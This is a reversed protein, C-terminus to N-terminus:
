KLEKLKAISYPIIQNLKTHTYAEEDHMYDIIEKSKTDKFASAVTELVDLEEASFNPKTMEQNPYIRYAIDDNIIEEEVRVGPLHIIEDYAIPLAGLPMHRYVLGTMSKGHRNYYIVDTYWLLKMLKVKYLYNVNQAFYAIVNNLKEIDLKKYGNYDNEEEFNVYQSLIEKKKLYTTGIKEIQKKIRSSIIDFKEKSFREKHKNLCELAFLPNDYIMRMMNDYTEDQIVKTEYRTVTVDGWGLMAALDSQSLGYINRIERIDASTLLGKKVRYADRARLLNEDMIEASVFENEEDNSLNCSYYIQEYDVAEDKVLAQTMRKNIEVLHTKGCIPCDMEVTELVNKNM